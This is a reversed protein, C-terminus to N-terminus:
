TMLYKYGTILLEFQRNMASHTHIYTGGFIPEYFTNPFCHTNVFVGIMSPLYIPDIKLILLDEIMPHLHLNFSSLCYENLVRGSVAISFKVLLPNVVPEFQKVYLYCLEWEEGVPVTFSKNHTIHIDLPYCDRARSYIHM